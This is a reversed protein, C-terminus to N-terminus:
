APTEALDTADAANPFALGLSEGLEALQEVISPVLPIGFIRNRGENQRELEGPVLLQSTAAVAPSSTLMRLIEDMRTAFDNSSIFLDTRVAAFVHGLNQEAGLDELRHLNLAFGSGTLVGCLIDIIFSIASGKAGGFPLVSGALAANADTTPNGDADIAWDAPIAKGEQAAVIIKGRAVVSTSADFLLPPEQGAPIGVAIPNTGLFRARGGFPAMHPPANSAAIGIFGKHIAKQVYFAAIGFHNSRRVGAFSIGALEAVAIAKEMARAGVVPGLGNDGDVLASNGRQQVVRTIPRPNVAGQLIRGAYIPLRVVGHSDVGRLDAAVLCESVEEADLPPVELAQLAACSFKRLDDARYRASESV